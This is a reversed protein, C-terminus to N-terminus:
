EHGPKNPAPRLEAVARRLVEPGADPQTAHESLYRRYARAGPMGQFLGMMHRTIHNLRSGRTLQTEIYPIM